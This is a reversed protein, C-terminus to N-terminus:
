VALRQGLGIYPLVSATTVLATLFTSHTQEAVIVALAFVLPKM